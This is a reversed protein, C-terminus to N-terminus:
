NDSIPSPAEAFRAAWAPFWNTSESTWTACTNTEPSRAEEARTSIARRRCHVGRAGKIREAATKELHAMIAMADELDKHIQELSTM